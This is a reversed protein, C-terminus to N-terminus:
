MTEKVSKVCVLIFGFIMVLVIPIWLPALVWGWAWDIVGCLKLVVFTITALGSLSIGGTRNVNVESM